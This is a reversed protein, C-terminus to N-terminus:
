YFCSAVVVFRVCKSYIYIKINILIVIPPLFSLRLLRTHKSLPTFFFSSNENTANHQFLFLVSCSMSVLCSTMTSYAFVICRNMENLISHSIIFFFGFLLHTNYHFFPLSTFHFFQLFFSISIFQFYFAFVLDHSLIFSCSLSLTYSFFDDWRFQLNRHSQYAFWFCWTSWIRHRIPDSKIKIRTKPTTNTHTCLTTAFTWVNTQAIPFLFYVSIKTSLANRNWIFNM